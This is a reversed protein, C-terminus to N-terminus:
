SELNNLVEKLDFIENVGMYPCEHVNDHFQYDFDYSNILQNARKPLKAVLNNHVKYGFLFIDLKCNIEKTKEELLLINISEAACCAEAANLRM